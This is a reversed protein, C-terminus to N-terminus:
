YIIGKGSGCRWMEEGFDVSSGIIHNGERRKVLIYLSIKKEKLIVLPRVWKQSKRLAIPTGKEWKTSERGVM